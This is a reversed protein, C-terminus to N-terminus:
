EDPLEQRKTNDFIGLFKNGDTQTDMCILTYDDAVYIWKRLFRQTYITASYYEGNAEADESGGPLEEAKNAYTVEDGYAAKEDNIFWFMERYDELPIEVWDTVYGFHELVKAKKELYEDFVKM